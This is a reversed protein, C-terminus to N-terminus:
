QHKLPTAGTVGIGKKTSKIFAFEIGDSFLFDSKVGIGASPKTEKENEGPNFGRAVFIEGM